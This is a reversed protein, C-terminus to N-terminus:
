RNLAVSSMTRCVRSLPDWLLGDRQVWSWRIGAEHWPIERWLDSPRIGRTKRHFPDLRGSRVLDAVGWLTLWKEWYTCQCLSVCLSPTVPLLLYLSLSLPMSSCLYSLCLCLPMCAYAYLCLCVSMCAYPHLEGNCWWIRLKWTAFPM